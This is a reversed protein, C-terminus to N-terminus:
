RDEHRGRPAGAAIRQKVHAPMPEIVTLSELLVAAAAMEYGFDDVDPHAALLADLRVEEGRSLGETARRLLLEDLANLTASRETM